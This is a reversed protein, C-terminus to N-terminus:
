VQIPRHSKSQVPHSITMALLHVQCVNESQDMAWQVIHMCYAALCYHFLHATCLACSCYKSRHISCVSAFWHTTDCECKSCNGQRCIAGTEELAGGGLCYWAILRALACDSLYSEKLQLMYLFIIFFCDNCYNYIIDWTM